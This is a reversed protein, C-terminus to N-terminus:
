SIKTCIASACIEPPAVNQNKKRRSISTHFFRPCMHVTEISVEYSANVIFIFFVHEPEKPTRNVAICFTGSSHISKRITKIHINLEIYCTCLDISTRIDINVTDTVSFFLLFLDVFIYELFLDNPYYSLKVTQM